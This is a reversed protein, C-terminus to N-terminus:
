SGQGFGTRALGIVVQGEDQSDTSPRECPHLLEQLCAPAAHLMKLPMEPAPMRSSHEAKMHM